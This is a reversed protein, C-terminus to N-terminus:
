TVEVDAVIDLSQLFAVLSKVSESGKLSCRAVLVLDLKTVTGIMYGGEEIPVAIGIRLGASREARDLDDHFMRPSALPTGARENRAVTEDARKRQDAYWDHCTIRAELTEVLKATLERSFGDKQPKFLISVVGM